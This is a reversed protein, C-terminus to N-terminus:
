LLKTWSGLLMTNPQSLHAQIRTEPRGTRFLVTLHGRNLSKSSANVVHFSNKSERPHSQQLVWGVASSSCLPSQAPILEIQKPDLEKNGLGPRASSDASPSPRTLFTPEWSESWLQHFLIETPSIHKYFIPTRPPALPLSAAKWHLLHQLCSNSGQTPFIGQLSPM